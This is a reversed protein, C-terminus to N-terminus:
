KLIVLRVFIVILDTGHSLSPATPLFFGSYESFMRSPGWRTTTADGATGFSGDVGGAEATLM